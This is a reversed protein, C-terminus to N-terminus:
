FYEETESDVKLSEKSGFLLIDGVSCFQDDAVSCTKNAEKVLKLVRAAVEIIAINTPACSLTRYKVRLLAFLLVSVTKTKGIEPPGWILEVQSKPNCLRQLVFVADKLEMEDKFVIDQSAKVRFSTASSNDDNNDKSFRTVLAFSWTRRRYIRQLDSATEPKVDAIVFVDEPLTKCLKKQHDRSKWYDVDVDYFLTRHSMYVNLFTLIVVEPTAILAQSTPVSTTASVPQPANVLFPNHWTPAPAPSFYWSSSPVSPASSPTVSSSHSWPVMPSGLGYMCVNAQPPPPRYSASKFSADFRYYCRDVLHGQKGCLQCQFRSGSSRDCGRGRTNSPPRYAPSPTTSDTAQHTVVNASSPVDTLLIQQRAEADLLMTTVGITNWIQASTDMGILHPLVAQSVSSLLWSALASDQQEFKVFEPNEQLVGNADPVLSPPAVTCTDLFQQLKYTKIALLVQQRWLLFNTDDLIVSIKKTSFFRSNVGRDVLSSSMAPTASQAASPSSPHSM